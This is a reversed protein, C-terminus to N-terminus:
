KGGGGSKVGAAGDPPVVLGGWEVLTASDAHLKDINPKLMKALPNGKAAEDDILNHVLRLIPADEDVLNQAEGATMKSM